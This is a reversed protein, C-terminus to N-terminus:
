TRARRSGTDSCPTNDKRYGCVSMGNESLPMVGSTMML